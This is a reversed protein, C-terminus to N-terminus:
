DKRHRGKGKRPGLAVLLSALSLIVSVVSLVLNITEM